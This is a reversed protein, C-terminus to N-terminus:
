AKRNEKLLDIRSAHQNAGLAIQLLWSALLLVPGADGVHVPVPAGHM